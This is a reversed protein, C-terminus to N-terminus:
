GGIWELRVAGSEPHGQFDPDGTVLSAQERIATALAFADAYSIPWRSKWQAAELILGNPAGAIRIPATQFDEWFQHAFKEDRIKALRYYVEGVNVMNISLEIERREARELLALVRDSGPQEKNIWVLVAWADLVKSKGAELKM